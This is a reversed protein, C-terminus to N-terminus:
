PDRVPGRLQLGTVIGRDPINDIIFGWVGPELEIPKVNELLLYDKGAVGPLVWSPQESPGLATTGGAHIVDLSTSRGSATWAHVYFALDYVSDAELDRWQIAHELIGGSNIGSDQLENPAGGIFTGGILNNHLDIASPAGFEDLLDVAQYGDASANWHSGGATSLVGDDGVYITDAGAAMGTLMDVSIVATRHGTGGAPDVTISLDAVESRGGSTVEITFDFTGEVTPTGAVEGTAADLALGDPLDGASVAWAFTGDGGLATVTESYAVGVEGDELSTTMIAPPPGLVTILVSGTRGGASAQIMATGPSLGFVDISAGSGSAHVVAPDSSSWTITTETTVDDGAETTVTADVDAVGEIEISDTSTTVTVIAIPDDGPPAVTSPDCSTAILAPVLALACMRVAPVLRFRHTSCSTSSRHPATSGRAPSRISM